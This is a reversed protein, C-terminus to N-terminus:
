WKSTVSKQRSDIERVKTGFALKLLPYDSTRIIMHRSVYEGTISKKQIIRRSGWREVPNDAMVYRIGLLPISNERAWETVRNTFRRRERYDRIDM